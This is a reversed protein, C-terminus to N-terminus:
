VTKSGPLEVRAQDAPMEHLPQGANFYGMQQMEFGPKEGASPQEPSMPLESPPYSSPQSAYTGPRLTGPQQTGPPGHHAYANDKHDEIGDYGVGATGRQAKRRRYLM